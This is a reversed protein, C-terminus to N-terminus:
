EGRIEAGSSRLAVIVRAMADQIEDGTLTRDPHQFVLSLTLSVKQAPVPPGDYRDVVRVVRLLAGAAGRISARIEAAPRESAALISLDRTVAPFRELPRFREAGPSELLLGDLGIEAVIPPDRLEFREAVAPHVVGVFGLAKENRHVLASLGPHLLPPTGGSRWDSWDVGLHLLAAEVIGKADFFDWPRPKESWHSPRANGSLAVGLRREEHPMSQTPQFVRGIEFLGADRRGQRQNTRLAGLLGPVLSNRLVGQEESLPNELAVRSGPVDASEAESVFACHIVEVLGSAVLTERVRRERLQWAKLGGLVGSSPLSSPLKDLGLHRGVEEILDIERAVDARWTPVRVPTGVGEPIGVGFGLGSLIHRSAAEPVAVGLVARM